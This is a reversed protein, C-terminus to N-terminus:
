NSDEENNESVYEFIMQPNKRNLKGNIPFSLFPNFRKDVFRLLKTAWIKAYSVNIRPTALINEESVNEGKELWIEENGIVDKGDFNERTINLSLCILAPGRLTNEKTPNKKILGGKEKNEIM